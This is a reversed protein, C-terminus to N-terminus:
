ERERKRERQRERKSAREGEREKGREKKRERLVLDNISSSSQLFSVEFVVPRLTM